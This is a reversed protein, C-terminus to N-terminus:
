ASCRRRVKLPRNAAARTRQGCSWCGARALPMRTSFGRGASWIQNELDYYLHEPYEKGDVLAM